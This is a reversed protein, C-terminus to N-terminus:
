KLLMRKKREELEITAKEIVLDEKSLLRSSQNGVDDRNAMICQDSPMGNKQSNTLDRVKYVQESTDLASLEKAYLTHNYRDSRIHNHVKWHMVVVIGTEFIHILKKDQLETLSSQELEFDRIIKKTCNTFGDDDALLNLHFYLLFADKSVDMMQDSYMVDRSFM